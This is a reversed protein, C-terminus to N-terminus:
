VKCSPPPSGGVLLIGLYTPNSEYANEIRLSAHNVGVCLSSGSYSLLDGEITNLDPSHKPYEEIVPCGAQRLASLNRAQWLCREHDQVLKVQGGSPFSALRWQKFKHGVLLNYRDSTMHTTKMQGRFCTDKPLVYYHLHSNCATYRFLAGDWFGRKKRVDRPM